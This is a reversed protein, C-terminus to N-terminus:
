VANSKRRDLKVFENGNNGLEHRSIDGGCACRAMSHAEVSLKPGPSGIVNVSADVNRAFAVGSDQSFLRHLPPLPMLPPRVDFSGYTFKIDDKPISHKKTWSSSILHHSASSSRRSSHTFKPRTKGPADAGHRDAPEETDRSPVDNSIHHYSISGNKTSTPSGGPEQWTFSNEEGTSDDSDLLPEDPIDDNPVVLLFHTFCPFCDLLYSWPM